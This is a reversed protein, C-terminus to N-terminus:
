WHAWAQFLHIVSLTVRLQTIRSGGWGLCKEEHELSTATVPPEEKHKTAENNAQNNVAQWRYISMMHAEEPPQASGTFHPTNSYLYQM